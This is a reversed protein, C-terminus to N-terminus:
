KRAESLEKEYRKKDDKALTVYKEKEEKNMASWRNSVEKMISVVPMKPNERKIVERIEQSFYIYASLPKKPMNPDRRMKNVM